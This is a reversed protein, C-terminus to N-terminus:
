TSLSAYKCRRPVRSHRDGPDSYGTVCLVAHVKPQDVNVINLNSFMVEINFNTISAHLRLNIM